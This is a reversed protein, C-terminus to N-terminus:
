NKNNSKTKRLQSELGASDFIKPGVPNKNNSTKTPTLVGRSARRSKMTETHQREIKQKASQSFEKLKVIRQRSNSSRRGLMNQETMNREPKGISSAFQQQKILV